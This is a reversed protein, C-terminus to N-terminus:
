IAVGSSWSQDSGISVCNATAWTFYFNQQYVVSKNEMWLGCHRHSLSKNENERQQNITLSNWHTSRNITIIGYSLIVIFIAPLSLLSRSRSSVLDMVVCFGTVYNQPRCAFAFLDSPTLLIHCNSSTYVITRTIPQSTLSCFITTHYLTFVKQELVWWTISLHWKQHNRMSTHIFWSEKFSERVLLTRHTYSQNLYRKCPATNKKHWSYSWMFQYHLCDLTM